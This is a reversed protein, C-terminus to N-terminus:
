VWRKPLVAFGDIIKMCIDLKLGLRNEVHDILIGRHEADSYSAKVSPYKRKYAAKSRQKKVTLAV